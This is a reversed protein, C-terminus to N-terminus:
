VKAPNILYKGGTTRQAYAAICDPQLAEALSIERTYHCAFTTTLDALVRQQLQMLVTPGVKQLYNPLLWGAVGFAPGCNRKLVTPGMDLAGYIYVQKYTASGYRAYDSAKHNIAAEMAGLIQSALNGGGIADFAMTAGTAVLDRTLDDVFSPASSNCVYNAGMDRLLKEQAESRVINVLGINEKQCLRHLMQGLNSAAATHVLATHGDRRMNDVMSLATMPNVFISAGQAASVNAPLVICQAAKANRYQVYMGGGYTAVTKGLMAQAAASAGARVVVGAGENGVVMSKGVRAAFARRTVEPLIATFIPAQPTGSGKGTSLDATALLLGLDSPNLPTAEVQIIVEDDAPAPMEVSVLSLELEGSEKILSRLQLGTLTENAAM